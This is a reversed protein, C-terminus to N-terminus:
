KDYSCIQRFVEISDNGDREAAKVGNGRTFVPFLMAHNVVM